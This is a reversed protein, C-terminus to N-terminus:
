KTERKCEVVCSKQNFADQYKDKAYDFIDATGGTKHNVVRDWLFIMFDSKEVVEQGVKLYQKDRKVGYDRIEEMTTGMPLAIITSGVADIYLRYFAEYSESTFDKKYLETPMPLLAEYRLGLEKAVNAVLQDAGEALPTLIYIERNPYQEIKEELINKIEEKYMPIESSKLDRHGSIGIKYKQKLM